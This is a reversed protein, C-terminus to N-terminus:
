HIDMKILFYQANHAELFQVAKCKQDEFEDIHYLVGFKTDEGAGLKTLDHIVEKLEPTGAEKLNFGVIGSLRIAM